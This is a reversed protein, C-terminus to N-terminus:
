LCSIERYWAGSRILLFAMSYSKGSGQTHWFVGLRGLDPHARKILPLADIETIRNDSSIMEGTPGTSAEAAKLFEPTYTYPILREQTPYEKKLKEQYVVSAVANNVGLVQHNRAVVKRTGGPRSDDFLIFNEVLDLLREKALM